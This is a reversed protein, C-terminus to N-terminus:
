KGLVLLYIIKRIPMSYTSLPPFQINICYIHKVHIDTMCPHDLLFIFHGTYTKYVSSLVKNGPVFELFKKGFKGFYIYIYIYINSVSVTNRFQKKIDMICALVFAVIWSYVEVKRYSSTNQKQGASPVLRSNWRVEGHEM